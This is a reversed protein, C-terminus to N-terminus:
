WARNRSLYSFLDEATDFVFPVARELGETVAEAAGGVVQGGLVRLAKAPQSTTPDAASMPEGLVDLIKAGRESAIRGVAQGYTEKNAEEAEKAEIARQIETVVEQPQKTKVAEEFAIYLDQLSLEEM